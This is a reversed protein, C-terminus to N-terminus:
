KKANLADKLRQLKELTEKLEINKQKNETNEITNTESVLQTEEQVSAAALLEAELDEEEIDKMGKIEENTIPKKNFILARLNKMSIKNQQQNLNSFDSKIIKHLGQYLLMVTAHKSWVSGPNDLEKSVSEKARKINELVVQEMRDLGDKEFRLICSKTTAEQIQIIHGLERMVDILCSGRVNLLPNKDPYRGCIAIDYFLDKPLGLLDCLDLSERIRHICKARLVEVYERVSDPNNKMSFITAKYDFDEIELDFIEKEFIEEALTDNSKEPSLLETAKVKFLRRFSTKAIFKMAEHLLMGKTDSNWLSDPNEFEEQIFPSKKAEELTLTYTSEKGEDLTYSIKCLSNTNKIVDISYGYFKIIKEIGTAHMGRFLNAPNVEQGRFYLDYFDDIPLKLLAAAEMSIAFLQITKDQERRNIQQLLVSNNAANAKKKMISFTKKVHENRKGIKYFDSAKKLYDM